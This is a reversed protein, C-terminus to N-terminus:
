SLKLIHILMTFTQTVFTILFKVQPMKSVGFTAGTKRCCAPKMRTLWLDRQPRSYCYEHIHKEIKESSEDLCNVEQWRGGKADVEGLLEFRGFLRSEQLRGRFSRM